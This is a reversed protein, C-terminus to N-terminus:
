SATVRVTEIANRLYGSANWVPTSRQAEGITNIALSQLAYQQSSVTDFSASWERFSYRGGDDPGLESPIWHAGGDSSFLVSQIGYGSDFAIGRVVQRKGGDVTQGDTLNTIFSRVTLRSIPVTPVKAGPTMCGCPDAPVRYATKMWYNDDIHDLVEIDSLMKVWYTGYYGPVVLRLPYGNLLPLPAGNMEYAVMVNGATALSLDLSKAFRPTQPLAPTDLGFFRVQV